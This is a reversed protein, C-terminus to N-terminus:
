NQRTAGMHIKLENIKLNLFMSKKPCNENKTISKQHESLKIIIKPRTQSSRQAGKSTSYM